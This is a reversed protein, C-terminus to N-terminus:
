GGFEGGGASDRRGPSDPGSPNDKNAPTTGGDAVTMERAKKLSREFLRALLEASLRIRGTLGRGQSNKIERYADLAEDYVVPLLRLTLSMTYILERVYGVRGAPGLIGSIGSVLDEASTTATLVKAGLIMILLNLTLEAGRVIGERSVRLGAVTYVTEGAHFLVNSIFTFVLFLLIPILGRRLTSLPVRFAFATVLFLLLFTLTLSGSAFVATVLLIYLLIKVRPSFTTV